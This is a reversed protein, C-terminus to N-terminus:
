SRSKTLSLCYVTLPPPWHGVRGRKVLSHLQYVLAPLKWPLSDPHLKRATLTTFLEPSSMQPQLDLALPTATEFGATLARLLEGGREASIDRSGDLSLDFTVILTGGPRLVRHFESIIADYADTHELVSICYAAHFRDSDYPLKRLDATSFEVPRRAGANIQEFFASISADYDCCHVGSSEFRDRLYHPFFTIGSGADLVQAAPEQDFVAQLRNLVFPYEWQRSWQHLPDAVWKHVYRRLQDGQASLFRNSYQELARFEDSRVIAQYQSTLPMGDPLRSSM